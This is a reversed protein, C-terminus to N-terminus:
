ILCLQDSTSAFSGCFVRGPAKVIKEDALSGVRNDSKVSLKRRPFMTPDSMTNSQPAARQRLYIFLNLDVLNLPSSSIAIYGSVDARCAMFPVIRALDANPQQESNAWRPRICIFKLGIEKEKAAEARRAWCCVAARQRETRAGNPDLM